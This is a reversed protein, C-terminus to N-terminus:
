GGILARIAKARDTQLILSEGVLIADCGARRLRSADEASYIGSEGVIARDAPILPALRETTALDVHFDRLDRNNIGIIRAGSALAACVEAEDHAEVLADMGLAEAVERYEQLQAPSLCAVILLIADAGLARAEYIQYPDITFDKRLVPVRANPVHAIEAVAALDALSGQFYPEDTLCSIASAGGRIYAGAVEAPDIEAPFRGKSPSARKIEAIVGLGPRKLANFLSVAAAQEALLARLEDVPTIRARRQVDEVTRVTIRDLFTGSPKVASM